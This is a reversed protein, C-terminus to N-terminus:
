GVGCVVGVGVDVAIGPALGLTVPYAKVGLVDASGFVACVM